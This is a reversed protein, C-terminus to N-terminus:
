LSKCAAELATWLGSHIELKRVQAMRQVVTAPSEGLYRGLAFSAVAPSRSMGASCGIILPPTQLLLNEVATVALRLTGAENADGDILPFRCYIIERPLAAPPEEYAVDVVAAIGHQFLAAADRLELANGLWLKEALLEVM